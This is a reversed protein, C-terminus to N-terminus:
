TSLIKNLGLSEINKGLESDKDLKGLGDTVGGILDPYNLRLGSAVVKGLLLHKRAFYSDFNEEFGDVLLGSCVREAIYYVVDDDAKNIDSISAGIMKLLSASKRLNMLKFEYETGDITVTNEKEM